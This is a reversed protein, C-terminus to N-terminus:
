CFKVSVVKALLGKLTSHMRTEAVITSKVAHSLM